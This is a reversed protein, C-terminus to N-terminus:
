SAGEYHSKQRLEGSQIKLLIDVCQEPTASELKALHDLYEICLPEYRTKCNHRRIKMTPTLM